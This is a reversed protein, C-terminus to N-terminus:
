PAASDAVAINNGLFYDSPKRKLTFKNHLTVLERDALTKDNTVVYGDDVYMLVDVRKGNVIKRFYCPDFQSQTFQQARLQRVLTRNWIRGTGFAVQTQKAM